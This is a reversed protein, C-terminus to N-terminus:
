VKGLSSSATDMPFISVFLRSLGSSVRENGFPPASITVTPDVMIPRVRIFGPQRQDLSRFGIALVSRHM